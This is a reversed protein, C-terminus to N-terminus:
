LYDMWGGVYPAVAGEAGQGGEFFADGNKETRLGDRGVRIGIRLADGRVVQNELHDQTTSNGILFRQQSGKKKWEYSM